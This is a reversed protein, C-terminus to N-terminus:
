AGKMGMVFAMGSLGGVTLVSSLLIIYALSATM